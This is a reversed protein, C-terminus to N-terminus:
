VPENIPAVVVTERELVIALVCGVVILGGIVTQLSPLEGLILAALLTAGVPEGLISANVVFARLHGISYTLLSHGILTPILGLLLLASWTKSDFGTLRIGVIMSILFLFLTGSAHVTMMYPILPVTQRLKRAALSYLSALLAALLALMNGTLASPTSDSFTILAMGGIAGFISYISRRSVREHILFSGLLATFIPQTSTLFTSAAVSTHQLSTIFSIQHLAIIVTAGGIRLLTGFQIGKWSARARPLLMVLSFAMGAIAGRWFATVLPPADAM